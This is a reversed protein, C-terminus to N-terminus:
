AEVVTEFGGWILRKGDFPMPNIDPDIRPDEMVKEMGADRVDKSPWTIWSFIVTEDDRCQVSKPFSTLEGDPVDIGWCETVSVAGHDKFVRAAEIAHDIFKQRNVTPVAAIIGEVYPM